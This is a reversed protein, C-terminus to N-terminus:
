QSAMTRWNWYWYNNRARFFTRSTISSATTLIIISFSNMAHFSSMYMYMINVTQDSIVYQLLLFLAVPVARNCTAVAYANSSLPHRITVTRSARKGCIIADNFSPWPLLSHMFKPIPHFSIQRSVQAATCFKSFFYMAPLPPPPTTFLNSPFDGVPLTLFTGELNFIRSCLKLGAKIVQNQPKNRSQPEIKRSFLLEQFCVGKTFYLLYM